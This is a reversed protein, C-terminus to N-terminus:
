WGARHAGVGEKSGGGNNPSLLRGRLLLASHQLEDNAAYHLIKVIRILMGDGKTPYFAFLHIFRAALGKWSSPCDEFIHQNVPM